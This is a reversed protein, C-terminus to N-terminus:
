RNRLDEIQQCEVCYRCGKVAERRAQPIAEECGKCHIASECITNTKRRALISDIERQALENAQDISDQM